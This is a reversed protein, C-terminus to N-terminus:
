RVTKKRNAKLSDIEKQQSELEKHVLKFERELEKLRKVNEVPIDHAAGEDAKLEEEDPYTKGHVERTDEALEKHHEVMAKMHEHAPTNPELGKCMKECEVSMALNMSHYTDLAKAGPPSEHTEEEDDADKPDDVSKTKTEVKKETDSTETKKEETKAEEKIKLSKGILMTVKEAPLYRRMAQIIKPSVEIPHKISKMVWEVLGDPNEPLLCLSVEVIEASEIVGDRNARWLGGLSVGRCIGNYAMDFVSMADWNSQDFSIIGDVVNTGSDYAMTYSKTERNETLGIPLTRDHTFLAIPIKQHNALQISGPAFKEGERDITNCDVKFGVQCRIVDLNDVPLTLTENM